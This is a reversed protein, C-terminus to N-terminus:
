EDERLVAAVESPNVYKLKSEVGEPWSWELSTLDGTFNNSQTSFKTVPVRIKAGSKFVVVMYMTKGKAPETPETM